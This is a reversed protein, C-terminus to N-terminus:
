TANEADRLAKRRKRAGGAGGNGKPGPILPKRNTNVALGKRQAGLGYLKSVPLDGLNVLIARAQWPAAGEENGEGGNAEGANGEGANEEEAPVPAFAKEARTLAQLQAKHSQLLGKGVPTLALTELASYAAKSGNAFAKILAAAGKEGGDLYCLAHAAEAGVFLDSDQMAKLLAPSPKQQPSGVALTTWGSAGWFRIEPRDSGLYGDLKSASKSTATAAVRAAELLDNLPYNNGRTWAYLNGDQRTSPPFFGLDRTQRLHDDLVGRLKDLTDRHEPKAALDNLEFPDANLDFLMEGAHPRYPQMHEPRAQGGLAHADWALNSPMGWQFNNRLCHPKHPTYSRILHFRGDSVGRSPVFHAAQNAAFGFQYQRAKAAHRGMIAQGQMWAPPQVGALSLFTPGLDMLHVLRDSPKGPEFGVLARFKPPVYAVLPVQLGTNYVFGKGRPLCGGHDSSFFVITNEDLGQAKLDQLFTDVWGDIDQVGELHFAYDSRVEPLDPVHPPLKLQQPDLGEAAFDRREEIGFSRLRSMHTAGCNFVAYFPQDARRQPSNYTAQPGNEDWITKADLRANYDTKANNTCYYGAKRLLPPFYVDDPIQVQKRHWDMGFTTSFNGTIISSRSPSCQPGAAWAHTFRVGRAALGDIVPTKASPNGYCGFEYASTDEIVLWLINPRPALPNGV